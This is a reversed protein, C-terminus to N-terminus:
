ASLVLHHSLGAANLFMKGICLIMADNEDIFSECLYAALVCATTNEVLEFASIDFDEDNLGVRVSILRSDYIISICMAMSIVRSCLHICYYIWHNEKDKPKRHLWIYFKKMQRATKVIGRLITNVLFIYWLLAVFWQHNKVLPRFFVYVALVCELYACITFTIRHLINGLPVLKAANDRYWNKCNVYLTCTLVALAWVSAMSVGTHLVIRKQRQHSLSSDFSENGFTANQERNVAQSQYALERMQDYADVDFSLCVFIKHLVTVIMFVWLASMYFLYTKTPVVGKYKKIGFCFYVMDKWNILFNTIKSLLPTVVFLVKTGGSYLSRSEEAFERVLEVTMENYIMNMTFEVMLRRGDEENPHVIEMPREGLDPCIEKANPWIYDLISGGQRHLEILENIDPRANQTWYDFPAPRTKSIPKVTIHEPWDDKRSNKFIELEQAHKRSHNTTSLVVNCHNVLTMFPGVESADKSPKIISFSKDASLFSAKLLEILSIEPNLVNESDKHRISVIFCNHQIQCDILYYDILCKILSMVSHPVTPKLIIYEVISNKIHSDLFSFLQKHPGEPSIMQNEPHSYELCKKHNLWPDIPHTGNASVIEVTTKTSYIHILVGLRRVHLQREFSKILQNWQRCVLLLRDLNYRPLFKFSEVMEETSYASM